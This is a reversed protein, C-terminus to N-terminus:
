SDAYLCVVNKEKLFARLKVCSPKRQKIHGILNWLLFVIMLPLTVLVAHPGLLFGLVM